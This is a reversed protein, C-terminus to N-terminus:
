VFFSILIINNNSPNEDVYINVLLPGSGFRVNGRQIWKAQGMMQAHGPVPLNKVTLYHDLLGLDTLHM